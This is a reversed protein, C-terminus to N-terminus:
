AAIYFMALFVYGVLAVSFKYSIGNDSIMAIQRDDGFTGGVNNFRNKVMKTTDQSVVRRHSIPAVLDGHALYKDM